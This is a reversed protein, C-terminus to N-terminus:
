KKVGAKEIEKVINEAITKFAKGAESNSFKELYPVGKDTEEVIKPDIPVAGLFPVKLEEAAKKGGGVKFLDIKKGCYPCTLGSMNEIIGLVPLNVKRAFDVAKRSDLLAMEQPTTVIVAGDVDKFEQAISLPEDGTGPPLDIVMYDLEGWNVDQIFQKILKIKLPGRWIVATDKNPLLLGMSVMLLNPKIKVPEIKEDKSFLKADEVGFFKPINPGHIDVDMLGVRINEDTSLIYALNAAVTSKGVGGKGSFIMIKKTKGMKKDAPIGFSVNEM